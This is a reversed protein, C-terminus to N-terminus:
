TLPKAEVSIGELPGNHLHWPLRRHNNWGTWRGNSSIEQSTSFIQTDWPKHGLGLFSFSKQKILLFTPKYSTHTIVIFRCTIWTFSRFQLNQEFKRATWVISSWINSLFPYVLLCLCTFLINTLVAIRLTKCAYQLQDFKLSTLKLSVQENGFM